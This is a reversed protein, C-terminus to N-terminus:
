NFHTKFIANEFKPEWVRTNDAIKKMKLDFSNRTTKNTNFEHFVLDKDSVALDFYFSLCLDIPIPSNIAFCSRRLMHYYTSRSILYGQTGYSYKNGANRMISMFGIDYDMACKIYNKFEEVTIEENVELDDELVLLYNYPTAEFFSEIVQTHAQQCNREWGNTTAATTTNIIILNYDKSATYIYNKNEVNRYTNLVAANILNNHFSVKKCRFVFNEKKGYKKTVVDTKNKIFSSNLTLLAFLSVLSAIATISIKYKLMAQKKFNLIV